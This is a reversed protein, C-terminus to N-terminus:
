NFMPDEMTVPAVEPGDEVIRFAVNFGLCGNLGFCWIFPARPGSFVANGEVSSVRGWYRWGDGEAHELVDGKRPKRTLM